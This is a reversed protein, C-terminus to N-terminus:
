HRFSTCTLSSRTRVFARPLTGDTVFAEVSLDGEVAPERRRLEEITAALTRGRGAHLRVQSDCMLQRLLMAM